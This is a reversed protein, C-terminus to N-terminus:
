FSFVIFFFFYQKIGTPWSKTLAHPALTEAGLLKQNLWILYM